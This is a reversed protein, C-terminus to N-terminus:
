APLDFGTRTECVHPLEATQGPSVKPMESSGGAILTVESDGAGGATTTLQPLATPPLRASESSRAAITV